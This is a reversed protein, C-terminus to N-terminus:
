TLTKSYTERQIDVVEVTISCNLLNLSKIENIITKSLLLKQQTTRGSLIKLIVHVFDSKELGTLYHTFPVARVKIDHGNKDFLASKLAGEFVPKLLDGANITSSHEIICHPM